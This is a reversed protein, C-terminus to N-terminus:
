WVGLGPVLPYIFEVEYNSNIYLFFRTADTMEAVTATIIVPDGERIIHNMVVACIRRQEKSIVAGNTLAVFPRLVHMNRNWLDLHEQWETHSLSTFDRAMIKIREM